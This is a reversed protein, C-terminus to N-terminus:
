QFFVVAAVLTALGVAAGLRGIRRTRRDRLLPALGPADAALPQLVQDLAQLTPALAAFDAAPVVEPSEQPPPPAEARRKVVFKTTPAKATRAKVGLLRAHEGDDLWWTPRRDARGVDAAPDRFPIPEHPNAFQSRDPSPTLM